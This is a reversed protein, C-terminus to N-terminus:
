ACVRNHIHSKRTRRCLTSSFYIDISRRHNYLLTIKVLNPSIFSPASWAFFICFYKTTQSAKQRQFPYRTRIKQRSHAKKDGGLIFPSLIKACLKAIKASLAIINKFSFNSTLSSIVPVIPNVKIKAANKLEKTFLLCFKYVNQSYFKCVKM